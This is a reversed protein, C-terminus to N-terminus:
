RLVHEPELRGQARAEVDLLLAESGEIWPHDSCVCVATSSAWAGAGFSRAQAQKRSDRM